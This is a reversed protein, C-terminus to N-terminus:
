QKNIYNLIIEKDKDSINTNILCELYEKPIYECPTFAYKGLALTFKQSNGIVQHEVVAM